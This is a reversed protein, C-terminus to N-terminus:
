RALLSIGRPTRIDGPSFAPKPNSPELPLGGRPQGSVVRDIEVFQELKYVAATWGM